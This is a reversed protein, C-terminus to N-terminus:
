SGKVKQWPLSKHVTFSYFTSLTTRVFSGLQNVLVGPQMPLGSFHDSDDGSHNSCRLLTLRNTVRRSAIPCAGPFPPAHAKCAPKKPMPVLRDAPSLGVIRRTGTTLPPFAGLHTLVLFPLNLTKFGFPDYDYAEGVKVFRGKVRKRTDALAKRSAYRIQKGFIRTKKKEKYRMKAKERAQPCSTELNLERPSEKTLFVPSIGCDQYDAASSEGTINSPSLSISSHIQRTTTPFGLNISRNFSPNMYLCSTSGYMAQIMSTSCAVQPSQFAICDQQGSSTVQPCGFIDDGNEFNLAVDDMNLGECLDEGDPIELDKFNSCGAKSMNPDEPLFSEQDRGHPVSNPDQPIVNSSRMCPELENLKRTVLGFTGENDKNKLCSIMSDENGQLSPLSTTGLGEPDYSTTTSPSADLVSSWIRSFEALSPRGTYCSLVQLHHGSSSCSNTNNWDCNQCISLKDDLCRLISPQSNCKDCLLSRSHRRSLCNASHVFEDCNLCLRASDSKCYVVARVVGCFECLPEM